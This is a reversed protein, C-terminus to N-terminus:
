LLRQSDQERFELHHFWTLISEHRIKIKKFELFIGRKIKRM